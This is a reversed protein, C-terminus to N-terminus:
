TVPFEAGRGNRGECQERDREREAGLLEVVIEKENSVVMEIYIERERQRCGNFGKFLDIKQLTLCHVLDGRLFRKPTKNEWFLQAKSTEKQASKKFRGQRHKDGVNKFSRRWPEEEDRKNPDARKMGTGVRIRRGPKRKRHSLSSFPISFRLLDRLIGM